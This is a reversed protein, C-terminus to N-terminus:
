KVRREFRSQHMLVIMMGGFFWVMGFVTAFIVLPRAVIATANRPFQRDIVVRYLDNNKYFTLLFEKTPDVGEWINGPENPEFLMFGETNMPVHKHSLILAPIEPIEHLASPVEDGVWSYCDWLGKACQYDFRGPYTSTFEKQFNIQSEVIAAKMQYPFVYHVWGQFLTYFIIFATIHIRFISKFGPMLFRILLTLGVIAFTYVDGRQRESAGIERGFLSNIAQYGLNLLNLEEQFLSVALLLYLWKVSISKRFHAYVGVWLSLFLLFVGFDELFQDLTFAELGKGDPISCVFTIVWFATCFLLIQFPWTVNNLRHHMTLFNPMDTKRKEATNAPFGITLM